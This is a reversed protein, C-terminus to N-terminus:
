VQEWGHREQAEHDVSDEEKAELYVVEILGAYPGIEVVTHGEYDLQTAAEDAAAQTRFQKYKYM